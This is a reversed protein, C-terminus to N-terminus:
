RSMANLSIPSVKYRNHVLGWLMDVADPADDHDAHPYEDFMSVFEHSLARNFLIWGHSVKPELRHIRKDKNETNEIDYFPIRIIKRASKERRKREDIINPLLLNRYLNTEVGFKQFEFREHYDFIANIQSTPPRRKTWDAHVLLRGKPDKYGMAMVAYDGMKKGTPKTQGTAPDMAGYANNRLKDWSIEEGTHEIIIGKATEKYWLIREFVKDEAGLPENQKEKMFARHGIEMRELMLDYPPEKEPWMVTFGDLMAEKNDEFFKEAKQVRNDDGIDMYINEWKNWLDTNQPWTKISRYKKGQYRPNRLLKELLAQKHLSTGVFEINTEEDGVKGVDEFFYNELKQRQLESYVRESHEFDDCIIKSPRAERYRIGRIQTGAGAAVVHMEHEPALITFASVPPKRTEFHLGYTCRLMGNTLIEDRIDKTKAAALDDKNSILLLFKEFGYAADHIPKILSILTSKASGRPSAWARRIRREGFRTTQFYEEHFENWPKTCYHPFFIGGFLRLDDECRIRILEFFVEEDDSAKDKM